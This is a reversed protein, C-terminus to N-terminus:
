EVICVPELQCTEIGDVVQGFNNWGRRHVRNEAIKQFYFNEIFVINPTGRLAEMIRCRIDETGM